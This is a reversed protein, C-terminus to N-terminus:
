RSPNCPNTHMLTFLEDKAEGRLTGFHRTVDNSLSQTRRRPPSGASGDARVALPPKPRAQPGSVKLIVRCRLRRSVAVLVLIRAAPSANELAVQPSPLRPAARCVRCQSPNPAM